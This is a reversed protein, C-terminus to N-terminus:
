LLTELLILNLLYIKTYLLDETHAAEDEKHAHETIHTCTLKSPNLFLLNLQRTAVSTAPRPISIGTSLWSSNIENDIKEESPTEAIQRMNIKETENSRDM